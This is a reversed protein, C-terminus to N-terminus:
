VHVHLVPTHPVWIRGLAKRRRLGSAHNRTGGLPFTVLLINGSPLNRETDLQPSRTRESSEVNKEIGFELNAGTPVRPNHHISCLTDSIKLDLCRASSVKEVARVKVRLGYEEFATNFADYAGLSNLLDQVVREAGGKVTTFSQWAKSHLAAIAVRQTVEPEAFGRMSISRLNHPDVGIAPLQHLVERIFGVEEAVSPHAEGDYLIELSSVKPLSPNNLLAIKVEGGPLNFEWTKKVQSQWDAGPLDAPLIGIFTALFVILPRTKVIKM